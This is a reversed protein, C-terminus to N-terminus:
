WFTVTRHVCFLKHHKGTAVLLDKQEPAKKNEESFSIKSQLKFSITLQMITFHNIGNHSTSYLSITVQMTVQMDLM